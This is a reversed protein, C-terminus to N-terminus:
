WPADIPPPHLLKVVLKLKPVNADEVPGVVLVEVAEGGIESSIITRVNSTKSSM